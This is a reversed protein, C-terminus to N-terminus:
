ARWGPVSTIEVQASVSDSVRQERELREQRDREDRERRREDEERDREARRRQREAAEEAERRRRADEELARRLIVLYQTFVPSSAVLGYSVLSIIVLGKVLVPLLKNGTIM